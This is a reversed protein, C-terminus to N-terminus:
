MTGIAIEGRACSDDLAGFLASTIDAGPVFSFREADCRIADAIHPAEATGALDDACSM